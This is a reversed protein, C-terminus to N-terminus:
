LPRYHRELRNTSRLRNTSTARRRARGEERLPPLGQSGGQWQGDPLPGRVGGAKRLPLLVKGARREHATHLQRVEERRPSRGEYEDVRTKVGKYELELEHEKLLPMEHMVEGQWMRILDPADDPLPDHKDYWVRRLCDSTLDTLHIEGRRKEVEARRREVIRKIFLKEVDKATELSSPKAEAGVAVEGSPEFNALDVKLGEGVRGRCGVLELVL